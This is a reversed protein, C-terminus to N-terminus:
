KKHKKNQGVIHTETRLEKNHHVSRNGTRRKLKLEHRLTFFSLNEHENVDMGTRVIVSANIM